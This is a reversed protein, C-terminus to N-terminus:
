QEKWFDKFRDKPDDGVSRAPASGLLIAALLMPVIRRM